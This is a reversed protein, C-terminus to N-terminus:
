TGGWTRGGDRSRYVHGARDSRVMVAVVDQPDAPNVAIVLAEGGGPVPRETWTKGGDTSAFLGKDTGAYVISDDTPHAAVSLVGAAIKGTPRLTAGADDSRLVGSGMSAVYVTDTGSGSVTMVDRPFAAKSALTWNEGSEDSRFLGVGVVNAYIRGPAVALGHIDRSPLNPKLSDWTEGGDTSKFFTDHGAAYVTNSDAPSIGIGMADDTSGTLNTKEWSRGGDISRLVGGHHGYLIVNPDTPSIAMSHFDPTRLQSLEGTGLEAPPASM